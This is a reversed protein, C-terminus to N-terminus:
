KIKKKYYETYWKIFKELGTKLQIKPKFKIYRYTRSLEAHTKKVDGKKFEVYKKKAKKNLIKELMKVFTMLKISHTNGLNFIQYLNKKDILKKKFIRFIMEVIDDIYTFDRFLNGRNYIEINKNNLINETFKFYAMDPRGWPGYVTFFRLGTCKLKYLSYYSHAILENSKKTAAYLSVPHDTKQDESYPTNKNLGYVSSSSAYMFHKIKFKKSLDLINFFGNINSAIYKKPHKLSYRVGAQAALHIIFKFNHKKFINNMKVFNNLDCNFHIYNKYKYLKKLRNIKLNKDYYTNLNDLGIITYNNKLFKEALKFGIFGATGTILIKM